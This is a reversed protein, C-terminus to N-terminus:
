GGPVNRGSGSGSGGSDFGYRSAAENYALQDSRAQNYSNLGSLTNLFLPALPSFSEPKSLYAARNVSSQAAALPDSSVYLDSMLGSRANEVNQRTTNAVDFGKDVVGQRNIAYEKTLDGFRKAGESSEQIGQRALAFTLGRFTNDYQDNLQPMAFDFYAKKQGEYFAPNFQDFTANIRATGDKIRQQRAIENQRDQASGNDVSPSCM